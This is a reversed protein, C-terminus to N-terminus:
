SIVDCDRKPVSATVGGSGDCWDLCVHLTKPTVKEVTGDTSVRVWRGGGMSVESRVHVRQGVKFYTPKYPVMVYFVGIESPDSGKAPKDWVALCAPDGVNDYNDPANNKCIVVVVNDPVGVIAQRIDGVTMEKM